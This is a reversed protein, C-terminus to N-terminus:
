IAYYVKWARLVGDCGGTVMLSGDYNFQIVKQYSDGENFDTRISRVTSLFVSDRDLIPSYCYGFSHESIRVYTPGECLSLVLVRYNDHKSQREIKLLHNSYGIGVAIICDDKPHPESNM